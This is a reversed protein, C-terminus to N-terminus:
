VRPDGSQCSKLHAVMARVRCLQEPGLDALLQRIALPSNDCPPITEALVCVMQREPAGLAWFARLLRREETVRPPQPPVYGALALLDM